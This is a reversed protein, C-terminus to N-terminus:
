AIVVVLTVGIIQHNERQIHEVIEIPREDVRDADSAGTLGQRQVNHNQAKKVVDSRSKNM